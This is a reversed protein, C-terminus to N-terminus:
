TESPTGRGAASYGLECAPLRRNPQRYNSCVHDAFTGQVGTPGVESTARVMLASTLTQQATIANMHSCRHGLLRCDTKNTRADLAHM